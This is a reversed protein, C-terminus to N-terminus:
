PRAAAVIVAFQDAKLSAGGVLAGDIDPQSLLQAANDANVSGGYQIRIRNAPLDGAIGALESRIFACAAQAIEPTATEGTGIAWVPEYAVTVREDISLGALGARLQRSLVGETRGGRREDLTEGVCVIPHLRTGLVTELRRRVTEDTEGFLQRRESHGIIVYRCYDELMAVSVEGTFAGKGEWHVNQAGVAVHTRQTIDHVVQLHPFPVCVALDCTADRTSQVVADALEAAEQRTTNM